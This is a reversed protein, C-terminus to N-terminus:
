PWKILAFLGFAISAIGTAYFVVETMRGQEILCMGVGVTFAAALMALTWKLSALQSYEASRM